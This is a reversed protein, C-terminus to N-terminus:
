AQPTFVCNVIGVGLEQGAGVEAVRMRRPM